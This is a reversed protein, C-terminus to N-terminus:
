ACYNRAIKCTFGDIQMYFQNWIHKVKADRGSQQQQQPQQGLWIWSLIKWKKPALGPIQLRSGHTMQHVLQDLVDFPRKTSLNDSIFEMALHSYIRQPLPLQLRAPAPTSKDTNDNGHDSCPSVVNKPEEEEVQAPKSCKCKCKCETISTGLLPTAQGVLAKHREEKATEDKPTDPQRSKSKV